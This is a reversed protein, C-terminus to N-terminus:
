HRPWARHNECDRASHAPGCCARESVSDGTSQSHIPHEYHVEAKLVTRITSYPRDALSITQGSRIRYQVTDIGWRCGLSSSAQTNANIEDVPGAVGYAM